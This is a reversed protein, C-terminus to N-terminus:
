TESCKNAARILRQVNHPQCYFPLPDFQHCLRCARWKKSRLLSADPPRSHCSQNIGGEYINQHCCSDREWESTGKGGERRGASRRAAYHSESSFPLAEEHLLWQPTQYRPRECHKITEQTTPNERVFHYISALSTHDEGVADWEGPYSSLAPLACQTHKKKKKKETEGMPLGGIGNKGVQMVHLIGFPESCVNGGLPQHAESSGGPNWDVSATQRKKEFVGTSGREKNKEKESILRLTGEELTLQFSDTQGLLKSKRKALCSELSCRPELPGTVTVPVSAAEMLTLPISQRVAFSIPSFICVALSNLTPNRKQRTRAIWKTQKNTQKM